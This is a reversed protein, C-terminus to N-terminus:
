RLELGPNSTFDPSCIVHLCFHVVKFIGNEENYGKVEHILDEIPKEDVEDAEQEDRLLPSQFRKARIKKRSRAEEM